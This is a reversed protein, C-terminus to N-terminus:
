HIGQQDFYGDLRTLLKRLSLPKEIFAINELEAVLGRPESATKGTLVTILFSRDPLEQSIRRCLEVGDMRPMDIDTILVDPSEAHIRALAQEGNSCSDVQYGQRELALRLVRIVHPEDDVLLIRRM